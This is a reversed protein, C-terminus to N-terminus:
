EMDERRQRYQEAEFDERDRQEQKRIEALDTEDGEESDDYMEEPPELYRDHAAAFQRNNM